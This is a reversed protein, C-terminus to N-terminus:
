SYQAHRPFFYFETNGIKHHSHPDIVALDVKGVGPFEEMRKQIMLATLNRTYMTPNGLREILFPIGGIHDLHAHTIIIGKIKEKREELYSTNPLSYDMGPAEEDSTFEFGVDFVFLDEYTELAFMNRGVEEVGGIMIMRVEGEEIPPIEQKEKRIMPSMSGPRPKRDFKRNIKTRGSGGSRRHSGSSSGPKKNLSKLSFQEKDNM